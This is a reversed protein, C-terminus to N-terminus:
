LAMGKAALVPALIRKFNEGFILRKDATSIDAGHVKALQSAYSRGGADSGFLVREAGLERVTMETFGAVPDGGGLDVYVNPCPRIARVGQEWDGGTHGCIFTAGPHRNALVALQMPTSEGPLNGTIKMWTHQFVPVKLETARAVIPDLSPDDCQKAVWLKIGVLPGNAVCRDLEALSEAIFNPNLYVYGLARHHWHSLAQITEDNEQRFKEPTPEYSWDLGMFVCIRAIGMRDAYHILQAMREDPTRGPVGAIHCHNDWIEYRRLDNSLDFRM